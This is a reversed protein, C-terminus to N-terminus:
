TVRWDICHLSGIVQLSLIFCLILLGYENVMMIFKRLNICDVLLITAPFYFMLPKGAM